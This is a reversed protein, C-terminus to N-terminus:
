HINNTYQYVVSKITKDLEEVLDTANDYHKEQVLKELRGGLSSLEPYGFSGGAGKLQHTVRLLEPWNKENLSIYIADMTLPLENIFKRIIPAIVPDNLYPNESVTSAQYKNNSSDSKLYQNLLTELQDNNIPKSISGTAGIDKCHQLIKDDTEATLMYIPSDNGSARLLEIADDGNMVPMNLDMLILDFEESLAAEVAQEGNNVTSVQAGMKKLIIKLLRQNNINDEALLISGYIQPLKEPSIEKQM